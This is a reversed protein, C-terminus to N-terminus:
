PIERGAQDYAAPVHMDPKIPVLAFNRHLKQLRQLARDPTCTSGKQTLLDNDFCAGAAHLVQVSDFNTLVLLQLLTSHLSQPSTLLSSRTMTSM